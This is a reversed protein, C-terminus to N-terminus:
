RGVREFLGDAASNLQDVVMTAAKGSPDVGFRVLGMDGFPEPMACSFADRDYHTLRMKVKLPGVTLVLGKPGVSVNM